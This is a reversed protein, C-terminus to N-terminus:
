AMRFAADWGLAAKAKSSDVTGDDQAINYIGKGGQTLALRAAHAAADVHVPGGAPTTEAGSGPGYLRGYRLVIGELPAALVQEELSAVGRASVGAGEPATVNLPADERYPLPGPAYAFAVSQAILRPAGAALAAAILNRTGIERIQANRARAQEMQSPDLGPPLDTLQHIVADPSAAVVAAELAPADYVDLVVPEVCLQRLAETRGPSRTMGVVQWGDAVLLASLRRGIVGGAGALFVRKAM